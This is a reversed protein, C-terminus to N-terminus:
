ANIAFISVLEKYIIYLSIILDMRMEIFVTKSTKQLKYHCLKFCLRWNLEDKIDFLVRFIPHDYSGELLTFFVILLDLSELSNFLLAGLLCLLIWSIMVTLTVKRQCAPDHTPVSETNDKCTM